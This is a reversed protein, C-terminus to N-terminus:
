EKGVPLFRAKDGRPWVYNACYAEAEPKDYPAGHAVFKWRSEGKARVVIQVRGKMANGM